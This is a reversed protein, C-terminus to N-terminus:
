RIPRNKDNLPLAPPPTLTKPDPHEIIAEPVHIYIMAGYNGYPCVIFCRQQSPHFNTDNLILVGNHVQASFASMNANGITKVEIEHQTSPQTDPVIIYDLGSPLLSSDISRFDPVTYVITHTTGNYRDRVTPWQRFGLGTGVAGVVMIALVGGILWLGHMERKRSMLSRGTLLLIAAALAAVILGCIVLLIEVPGVPFIRVSAARLGNLLLYSGATSAGAVVGISAIILGIGVVSLVLRAVRQGFRGVSATAREAAKPVDARDVINKLTELTVAKGEMQLQDSPTKAEPLVLWLLLYILIGMAGWFTTLVFLLRIALVPVGFYAALGAAVGAVYGNTPDRFLRRSASSEDDESQSEDAADSSFDRPEGLQQKLFTVDEVLVVKEPTIGRETLLEAMRLEVEKTVEAGALREIAHLYTQLQHHADNAITFVVRGLHIKTIENM